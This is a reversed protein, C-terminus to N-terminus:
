GVFNPSMSSDPNIIDEMTNNIAMHRCFLGCNNPRVWSEIKKTIPDDWIEKLSKELINGIYFDPEGRASKCFTVQGEATIVLMFFHAYCTTPKDLNEQSEMFTTTLLKINNESLIEKVQHFIKQTEKNNWFKGKDSTYQDPALQFYDIKLDKIINAMNTLTHVNDPTVLTRVGINLNSEKETKRRSILRLNDLIKDFQNVGQVKNYSERDGGSISFRIWQLNDIYEDVNRETITSGNTITGLDFGLEKAYKIIKIYDSHITPEGGGTFSIAKTGLNKAEKLRKMLLTTDLSPRDLETGIHEAYFCFDCRHNCRNTLDIEITIPFIRKKNKYDAIKEPHYFIKKSFDFNYLNLNKNIRFASGMEKKLENTKDNIKHTNKISIIDTM